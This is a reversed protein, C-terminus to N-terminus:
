PLSSCGETSRARETKKKKKKKKVRTVPGLLDQAQLQAICFDILRLYLGAKTVVVLRETERENDREKDRV